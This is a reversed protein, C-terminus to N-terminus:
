CETNHFYYSFITVNFHIQPLNVTIKHVASFLSLTHGLQTNTIALSVKLYCLCIEGVTSNQISLFSQKDSQHTGPNQTCSM